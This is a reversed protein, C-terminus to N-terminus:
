DADYTVRGNQEKMTKGNFFYRWHMGDEGECTVESGKKVYPAIVAFFLSDDGLKEGRFQTCRLDGKDNLRAPYRWEKFATLIDDFKNGPPTSVWSYFKAITKGGRATEGGGHENVVEPEMIENIADLADQLKEKPITIDPCMNVCYGM